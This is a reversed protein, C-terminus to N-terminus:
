KKRIIDDEAGEDDKGNPGFSYILIEHGITTNLSGALKYKYPNGWPDCLVQRGGDEKLRKHDFQFLRRKELAGLFTSDDNTEYVLKDGSVTPYSGSEMKFAEIAVYLSKIVSDAESIKVSERAKTVGIVGLTALIAIIGIVVLLEVMSFGSARRSVRGRAGAEIPQKKTNKFKKM